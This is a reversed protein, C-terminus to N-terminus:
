KIVIKESLEEKGIVAKIIYIGKEWGTTNITYSSGKIEECLVKKGSTTNYVELAWNEDVEELVSFDLCNNNENKYKQASTLFVEIQSDNSEVNLSHLITNPLIVFQYSNDCNSNSINQITVLIPNNSTEDIPYTVVLSGSSYYAWGSPTVFSHSVNKNVLNPSKLTVPIGKTVWVPINPSFITNNDYLGYFDGYAVVDMQLSKVLSFTNVNYIDAHLTAMYSKSLNNTITCTNDGSSQLTPAVPGFGDSLYWNVYFDSPLGNISFSGTSSNCIYPSGSITFNRAAFIAAGADLLGYGVYQNWGYNNYSYTGTNIKKATSNLYYRISSPTLNPNVSLMLAATGAVHPASLSTGSATAYSGDSSIATSKISYGPAVLDLGEGYNSFDSKIYDNSSPSVSGVAITKSNSAPYGISSNGQNGSSCVMVVNNNYAYDIMENFASTEPGSFSMNIVKVGNNVADYIADLIQCETFNTRFSIIKVGPSYHGGAIGAIGVSNYTKAGIIGAVMTGHSDNPTHDISSVYDICEYVSLNSYLDNGYDLDEHTLEVGSDIVAVKVSPSGTTILWAEDVNITNLGWQSGIYYDVGALCPKYYFNYEIYEFEGTKELYSVYDEIKIDDPVAIEIIGLSYTKITKIMARSPAIGEKQKALVVKDNIEYLTGKYEAYIKGDIRKLDKSVFSNHSYGLLCSFFLVFLLAIRYKM